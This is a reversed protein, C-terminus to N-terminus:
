REAGGASCVCEGPANGSLDNMEFIANVSYRGPSIMSKVMSVGSGEQQPKRSAYEVADRDYWLGDEVPRDSDSM